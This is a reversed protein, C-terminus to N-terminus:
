RLFIIAVGAVVLVAGFAARLSVKEKHFIIVLPLIIVPVTAMLTAAIGAKTYRAAVLSLWVGFTPGLLTAGVASWRATRDTWVARHAALRGALLAIIWISLTAATMRITNAPLPDIGHAMGRKALVLGVGQGLAALVGLMVGRVRHGHPTDVVPRELVVWAVGGMTLIMGVVAQAGLRENLLPVAVVATIPPALAAMLTALRPGLLVLSGFYGLDGLTLGIVGSVALWIVGPNSLHPFQRAAGTLFLITTLFVLALTIRFQNLGFAGARRGAATFLLSGFSWMTATALAAIEGLHEM